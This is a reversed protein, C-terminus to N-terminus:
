HLIKRSERGEINASEERATRLMKAFQHLKAESAIKVLRDLSLGIARITVLEPSSDPM